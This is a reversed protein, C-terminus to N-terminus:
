VRMKVPAVLAISGTAIDCRWALAEVGTARAAAFARAYAPDIDRALDFAEARMQIVFLMVAREGAHVRDSLEVLHKAGRKTVCDPFEALGARRMLHVNKVEVWCAPRGPSELLIDIRSNAGYRVERRLSDYGALEPILGTRIAEEALANPLGTDIGVLERGFGPFEAEVIMWSFDLKHGKGRHDALWVRNGPAALGLMSGPNPCYATITDGGEMEVDCLFRKYRRILRAPVLPPLRM